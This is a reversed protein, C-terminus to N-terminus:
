LEASVLNSKSAIEPDVPIIGAGSQNLKVAIGLCAIGFSQITKTTVTGGQMVFWDLLAVAKGFVERPLFRIYSEEMMWLVM